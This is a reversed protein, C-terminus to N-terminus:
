TAAHTSGRRRIQGSTLYVKRRRVRPKPKSEPEPEEDFARRNDQLSEPLPTGNVARWGVAVPDVPAM